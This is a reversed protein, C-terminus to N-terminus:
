LGPVLLFPAPSVPELGGHGGPLKVRQHSCVSHTTSREGDELSSGPALSGAEGYCAASLGTGVRRLSCVCCVTVPGVSNGLSGHGFSSLALPSDPM